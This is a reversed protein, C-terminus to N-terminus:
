LSGQQSLSDRDASPITDLGLDAAAFFVRRSPADDDLDADASHADQILLGMAVIERRPRDAPCHISWGIRALNGQAQPGSGREGVDEDIAKTPLPRNRRKSGQQLPQGLTEEGAECEERFWSVDTQV